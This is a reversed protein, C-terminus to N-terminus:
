TRSKSIPFSPFWCAVKTNNNKRIVSFFFFFACSFKPFAFPFAFIQKLLCPLHLLFDDLHTEMRIWRMETMFKASPKAEVKGAPLAPSYKKFIDDDDKAFLFLKKNRARVKVASINAHLPCVDLQLQKAGSACVFATSHYHTCTFFLATHFLATTKTCSSERRPSVLFFISVRWISMRRITTPCPAHRPNSLEVYTNRMERWLPEILGLHVRSM